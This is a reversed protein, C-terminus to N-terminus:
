SDHDEFRRELRGLTSLILFALITCLVATAEHGM